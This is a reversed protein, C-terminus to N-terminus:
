VAYVPFQHRLLASRKCQETIVTQTLKLAVFLLFYFAKFM